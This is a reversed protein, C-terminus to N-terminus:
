VFIHTTIVIRVISTSLSPSSSIHVSLPMGPGGATTQWALGFTGARYGTDTWRFASLRARPPGGTSNRKSVRDIKFHRSEDKAGLMSGTPQIVVERVIFM